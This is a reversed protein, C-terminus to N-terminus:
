NLSLGRQFSRKNRVKKIISLFTETTENEEENGEILNLAINLLAEDPHGLPLVKSPDALEDAAHDPAFGETYDATGEANVVECVVPRLIWPFKGNVYSNTGYHNGQTNQGILVVEMYPKLCNVLMEATGSTNEGTIVFLRSLNLNTGGELLAEDLILTKDLDQKKESHLLSAFPQGLASAPAIVTAWLQASETKGGENYRLDLVLDKVGNDKCFLSFRRVEEDTAPDFSNYVIYAVKSSPRVLSYFPIVADEVPKEAGLTTSGAPEILMTDEQTEDSAPRLTYRGLELHRDGGGKLLPERKLTIYDGEVSMIWGGRELGAEEAPSHPIVYTIQAYYATDNDPVRSLAYDFGYTPEPTTRLTDVKSYGNDKDSRVKDLFEQPSLFYNLDDFGPMEEWWLYDERMVSDMWLDCGTLPYYESWRDTGCAALMALMGFVPIFKTKM